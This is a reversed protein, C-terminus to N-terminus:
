AAEESAAATENVGSSITYVDEVDSVFIKGDGFAGKTGSRASDMITNIVFDKDAANVVCMLMTKPIEDYTVEGIKIGRQKGRGAVSYKTVAPFGNDMLAALVTDAKEPRVIARVMIMM